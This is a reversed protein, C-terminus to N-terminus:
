FYIADCFTEYLFTPRAGVKKCCYNGSYIFHMAYIDSGSILAAFPHMQPSSSGRTSEIQFIGTNLASLQINGEKAHLGYMTM